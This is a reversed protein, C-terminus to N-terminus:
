QFHLERVVGDGRADAPLVDYRIRVPPPADQPGCRMGQGPPLNGTISYRNPELVYTKRGRNTEVVVSPVGSCDMEVIRGQVEALSSTQASPAPKVAAPKAAATGRGSPARAQREQQDLYALIEAARDRYDKTVAVSQLRLASARAEGLQGLQLQARAMAWFLPQGHEADIQKITSLTVLAERPQRAEAQASALEIRADLNDPELKLLEGLVRVSDLPKVGVALRGYDWLLEPSHDGLAYAKAFYEVAKKVDRDDWALYAL